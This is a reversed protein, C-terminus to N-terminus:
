RGLFKNAESENVMAGTNFSNMLANPENRDDLGLAHGWEHAIISASNTNASIVIKGSGKLTVGGLTRQSDFIRQAIYGNVNLAAMKAYVASVQDSDDANVTALAPTADTAAINGFFGIACQRDLTGEDGDDDTRLTEASEQLL